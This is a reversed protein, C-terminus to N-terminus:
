NEITTEEPNEAVLAPVEALARVADNLHTCGLSRALTELVRQRLESVHLSLLRDLNDIAGQCEVYPLIRPEARLETLTLSHPDIVAELKYEHVAVRGGDQTNASDQFYSDIYINDEVWIDIRRARRMSPADYEPMQHWGMPDDPHPLPPVRVANHAGRKTQQMAHSGSSFGTCVNEMRKRVASAAQTQEEETQHEPLWQDRWQSWAWPSIISMGTIDDLLLYLPTGLQHEEPLAENMAARLKGGVKPGCLKELQPRPPQTSLEILGSREASLTASLVDERLVQPESGKSPTYIDRGRGSLRVEGGYGGPWTADITTTRRVSNARRLPSRGVPNHPPKRDKDLLPPFIEETM